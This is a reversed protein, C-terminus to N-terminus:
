RGTVYGAPLKKACEPGVPYCGMSDPHEYLDDRDIPLLHGGGTMHIQHRLPDAVGRGCVMCPERDNQEARSANRERQEGDALNLEPLGLGDFHEANADIDITQM